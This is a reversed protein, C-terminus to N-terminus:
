AGEHKTMHRDLRKFPGEGCQPCLVGAPAEAVPTPKVEAEDPFEKLLGVNTLSRYRGEPIDALVRSPVVEGKDFSRGMLVMPRATKIM